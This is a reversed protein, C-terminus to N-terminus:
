KKNPLNLITFGVIEYEKKVIGLTFTIEANLVSCLSKNVEDESSDESIGLSKCVQAKKLKQEVIKLGFEGKELSEDSVCRILRNSWDVLEGTTDSTFKGSQAQFGVLRTM